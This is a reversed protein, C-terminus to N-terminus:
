SYIHHLVNQKAEGIKTSWSYNLHLGHSNKCFIYFHNSAKILDNFHSSSRTTILYFHASPTKTFNGKEGTAVTATAHRWHRRRRPAGEAAEGRWPGGQQILPPWKRRPREGRGKEESVRVRFRARAGARDAGAAAGIRRRRGGRALGLM